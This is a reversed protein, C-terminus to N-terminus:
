MFQSRSDNEIANPNNESADIERLFRICLHLSRLSMPSRLIPEIEAKTKEKVLVECM